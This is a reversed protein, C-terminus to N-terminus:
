GGCLSSYVGHKIVSELIEVSKDTSSILCLYFLYFYIMSHMSLILSTTISIHALVKRHYM